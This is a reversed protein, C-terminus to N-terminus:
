HPARGAGSKARAEAESVLNEVLKQYHESMADGRGRINGDQDIVFLRTSSDRVHYREGIKRGDALINPWILGRAQIDKRAEAIDDEYFVGLVDFPRGKMKEVLQRVEPVGPLGGLHWFVIAVVRGRYDSLRIPRGDAGTGQFDPAPKDVALNRIDDLLATAKEGLTPLPEALLREIGERNKKEVPDNTAASPKERARRELERRRSTFFSIDAYQAIVEEFLRESQSRLYAADLMRYHEDYGRAEPTRDFHIESRTGKADFNIGVGTPQPGPHKRYYEAGEAKGILYRALAFRILGRTERNEAVAYIGELFADRNRAHSHYMDLASRAVQPDDAHYKVLLYAARSFVEGFEGVSAAGPFDVIWLLGDRGGLDGPHASILDVLRNAFEARSSPRLGQQVRQQYEEKTLGKLSESWRAQKSEYERILRQVEDALSPGESKKTEVAPAQAIPPGNSPGQGGATALFGVTAGGGAAALVLATLIKKLALSGQVMEALVLISTPVAATSGITGLTSEALRRPVDASVTSSGIWAAVAAPGLGRRILRPRLIDRARSLRSRITGIPVGLAEAAQEHSLGDLHCLSAAERYKSPLLTVERDVIRQIEERVAVSAPDDPTRGTSSTTPTQRAALRRARGAIKRAVGYFWRGLSDEVRVSAAKRAFVLFVAQFADEAAHEDRLARRCVGLVMPGHRDILTAFAAEATEKERTAVMRLLDADSKPGIAGENFLVGLARRDVKGKSSEGM